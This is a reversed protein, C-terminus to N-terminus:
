MNPRFVTSYPYKCWKNTGAFKICFDTQHLYGNIRIGGYYTATLSNKVLMLTHTSVHGHERLGRHRCRCCVVKQHAQRGEEKERMWGTLSLSLSLSALCSDELLKKLTEGAWTIHSLSSSAVELRSVVPWEPLWGRTITRKPVVRSTYLYCM